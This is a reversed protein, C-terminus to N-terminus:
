DRWNSGDLFIYGISDTNSAPVCVILGDDSFEPVRELYKPNKNMVSVINQPCTYLGPIYGYFASSNDLGQLRSPGRLILSYDQPNPFIIRSSKGSDNYGTIGTYTGVPLNDYGRQLIIRDEYTGGTLISRNSNSFSTSQQATPFMCGCYDTSPALTIYDGFWGLHYFEKESYYGAYVGLYFGRGDGVVYWKAKSSYSSDRYLVWSFNYNEIKGNISREHDSISTVGERMEVLCRGDDQNKFYYFATSAKPHRSKFIVENDNEFSVEWNGLPAYKVRMSGGVAGDQVGVTEFKLTDSTVETVRHETNMLPNDSGSIKIVSYKEFGHGTLTMTAVNGSVQINDPTKENFGEILVKKLMPILTKPNNTKPAGLMESHLFKVNTSMPM